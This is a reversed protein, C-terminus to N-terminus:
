EGFVSWPYEWCRLEWNHGEVVLAAKYGVEAGLACIDWLPLEAPNVEFRRLAADEGPALTVDFRNLGLSLGEGHAKIFAEKRTWCNFFAEHRQGVPLGCLVEMEWPSFSHRAVAEVDLNARMYEVDVGVERGLTFAFLACENSHSVNFRIDHPNAAKVVSPKGYESYEFAVARPVVHLYSGLIQRLVGRAVTFRRRHEEFYFRDARQREDSGLIDYLSEVRVAPQDTAARWVDVRDYSLEPPPSPKLWDTM